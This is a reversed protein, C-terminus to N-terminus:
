LADLLENAALDTVDSLSAFFWDRGGNGTLTDTNGDDLVTSGATLFFPDNLVGSHLNQRGRFKGAFLARLGHEGELPATM